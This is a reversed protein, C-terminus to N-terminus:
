AAGKDSGAVPPKWGPKFGPIEELVVAKPIQCMPHGPQEGWHSEWRAGQAWARLRARAQEHPDFPRAPGDNAPVQRGGSAELIQRLSETNDALSLKFASLSHPPESKAWGEIGRDIVETLLDVTAGNNLHQQALTRQTMLIAHKGKSEPWREDKRKLFHDVVAEAEPTWTKASKPKPTPPLDGEGEGEGKSGTAVETVAPTAPTAANSAVTGTVAGTAPATAPETGAEPPGGEDAKSLRLMEAAQALRDREDRARKIQAQLQTRAAPDKEKDLRKAMAAIRASATRLRQEIKRIWAAIVKEAVVPHYLRGDSCKVWGRMVDAKVKSWQRPDCMAVDAIVDDDDEISGAPVNHWVGMWLNVMYFGVAPKRKAILWSKSRRLRDVELQLFPFDTLDADAPVLPAPCESLNLKRDM